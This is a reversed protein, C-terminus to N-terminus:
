QNDDAFKSECYDYQIPAACPCECQGDALQCSTEHSADQLSAHTFKVSM